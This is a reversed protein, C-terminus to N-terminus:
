YRFDGAEHKTWKRDNLTFDDFAARRPQAVVVGHQLDDILLYAGTQLLRWNPPGSLRKCLKLFRARRRM